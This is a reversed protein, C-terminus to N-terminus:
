RPRPWWQSGTSAGQLQQDPGAAQPSMYQSASLASLVNMVIPEVLSSLNQGPTASQPPPSAALTSWVPGTEGSRFLSRLDPQLQGPSASQPTVGTSIQPSAGASQFAAAVSPLGVGEYIPSLGVPSAAAMVTQFLRDVRDANRPAARNAFSPHHAAVVAICGALHPAAMSTGDWAAYGGGPICSIIAVGPGCVKVQPGFCTFKAAFVGNVGILNSLTQAHYTDDPYDGQQGVASVSLVSPLSAPFQVPGASNGAAVVVAVGAQRAQEMWSQVIESSQDSGLSCNIVDIQNDIAYKLARILSDFAGGPFLKLIHVEAAPAFGRIGNQGNGAIVGACHTGHSMTDVTWSQQDPNGAPDVNTYDRGIQIHTLAPHRNDCGSDVIAVRVGQGTLTTAAQQDLGMLRQGWGLFPNGPFAAPQFTGLPRVTVTNVEADNLAPNWIWREWFNAFPKVYLAQVNATTDSLTLTAMGQADTQAQVPFGSGYVLIVAKDLPHGNDGLVRFQLTTSTPAITPLGQPVGAFQPTLDALHILQHNPEAIVDPTAAASMQLALAREQTTRAVHVDSSSANNGNSFLSAGSPKITGVIEVDSFTSLTGLVSAARSAPNLNTGPRVSILLEVKRPKVERPMAGRAPGMAAGPSAPAPQPPAAGPSAPAPQPPAAGPSAPAPQPSAVEPQIIPTQSAEPQVTIQGSTQNSASPAEAGGGGISTPQDKGADGERASTRTQAM